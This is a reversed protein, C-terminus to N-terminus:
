WLEKNMTNLMYCKYTKEFFKQDYNQQMWKKNKNKIWLETPSFPYWAHLPNKTCFHTYSNKIEYNAIPNILPKGRHRIM